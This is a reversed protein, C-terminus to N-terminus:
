PFDYVTCGRTVANLMTNEFAGISVLSSTNNEIRYELILMAALDIDHSGFLYVDRRWTDYNCTFRRWALQDAIASAEALTMGAALQGWAQQQLENARALQRSEYQFYTVTAFFILIGLPVGVMSPKVNM